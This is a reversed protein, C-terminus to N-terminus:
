SSSFLRAMAMKVTTMPQALRVDRPRETQGHRAGFHFGRADEYGEPAHWLATLLAILVFTGAFLGNGSCLVLKSEVDAAIVCFGLLSILGIFVEMTRM